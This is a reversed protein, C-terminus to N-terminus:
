LCPNMAAVLMVRAPFTLSQYARAITVRGDELPQRLGDLLERRFETLEDLFLVGRHALTVEGPHPTGSGGGILGAMSVSHHPARFPRATALGSGGPLLGVASHIQSVELAEEPSMPPLIGALRRALMTKGSGQSGALLVNHGGAAAVELARKASRQGRVEAFDPGGAAPAPSAAAALGPRWLRRAPGEAVAEAAERLSSVGVVAVEPVLAAEAANALPLVLGALGASRAAIALPLAGIVPRLAGELSLEGVIMWRSAEALPVQGSAALVALAIALDLQPGGKRLVAPALNCTLRRPPFEFGANRIATRVRERSEMVGADGLGVVAFNPLGYAVDVEVTVSVAEIGVITGSPIAALQM